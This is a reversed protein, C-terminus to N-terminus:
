DGDDDNDDHWHRHEWREHQWYRRRWEEREWRERQEWREHAIWAARPDYGYGPAYYGQYPYGSGFSFSIGPGEYYQASAPSSLLMGVFAAGLAAPFILRGIM